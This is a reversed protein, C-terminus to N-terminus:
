ASGKKDPVNDFGGAHFPHCKLLRMFTYWGGLLVGHRKFAIMGYESCTPFFRCTPPKLPSIVRQYFWILVIFVNRM